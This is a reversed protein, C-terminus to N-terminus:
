WTLNVVPLATGNVSINLTDAGTLLTNTYIVKYTGDGLDIIPSGLTGNVSGTPSAIVNDIFLGAGIVNGLNDKPTVIITIIANATVVPPSLTVVTNVANVISVPTAHHYGIDLQNIDPASTQAYPNQTLYGVGITTRNISADIAPSLVASNGNLATADSLYWSKAFQPIIGTINLGLSPFAATNTLNYDGALALPVVAFNSTNNAIINDSMMATAYADISLGTGFNNAITNSLLSVNAGTLGVSDDLLRVGGNNLLDTGNQVILNNQLTVPLTQLADIAVGINANTRILNHEIIASATNHVYIGTNNGVIKNNTITVNGAQGTVPSFWLALYVGTNSNRIINNDIIPSAGNAILVAEDANQIINNLVTVTTAADYIALAPQGNGHLDITFNQFTPSAGTQIIVGEHTASYKDVTNNGTFIPNTGIGSIYLATDGGIGDHDIHLNSVTQNMTGSFRMGFGGKFRSVDNMPIASSVTFGD